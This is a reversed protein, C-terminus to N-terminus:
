WGARASAEFGSVLELFELARTEVNAIQEATIELVRFTLKNEPFRPDYSAWIARTLGACAAQAVIQDLYQEPVGDHALWAAHTAPLPCKIEVVASDEVFADPTAGFREITRHLVWRGPLLTKGSTKALLALGDAEHDIGWRMAATSHTDTALGTLREAVLQWAYTTAEGSWDGNKKRTVRHLQSATLCGLRRPDLTM